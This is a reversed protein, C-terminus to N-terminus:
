QVEILEAPWGIFLKFHHYFRDLAKDFSQWTGEAYFIPSEYYCDLNKLVEDTLPRNTLIEDHVVLVYQKQMFDGGKM